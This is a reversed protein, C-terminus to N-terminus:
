LAGGDRAVLRSTEDRTLNAIWRAADRRGRLASNDDTRDAPRYTALRANLRERYTFDDARDASFDSPYDV